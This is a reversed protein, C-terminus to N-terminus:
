TRQQRRLFSNRRRRNSRSNTWASWSMSRQLSRGRDLVTKETGENCLPRPRFGDFGSGSAGTYGQSRFTVYEKGDQFTTSGDGGNRSSGFDCKVGPLSWEPLSRETRLPPAPALILESGSYYEMEKRAAAEKGETTEGLGMTDDRVEVSLEENGPPISEYATGLSEKCEM